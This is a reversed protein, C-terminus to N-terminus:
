EKERRGKVPKEARLKEVERASLFPGSGKRRFRKEPKTQGCESCKEGEVGSGM